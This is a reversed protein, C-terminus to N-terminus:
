PLVVFSGNMIGYHGPFSCIFEYYGAAPAEFTITASEGGGIVPTFAIVSEKMDLPIYGSDKSSVAAMGFAAKDTGAKLLVWNHGMAVSSMQGVHKLTLTVTQGASIEIKNLNFQMMDNGEITISVNETVETVTQAQQADNTNTEKKESPTCSIFIISLFLATLTTYKM